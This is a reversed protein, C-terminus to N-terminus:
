LISRGSWSQTTYGGFIWGESSKIVILTPGKNDCYDHFSKASYEHESARFLLRWQYDNGFWQRIKKDYIRNVILTKPLYDSSDKLFFRSIKLRIEKDYCHIADMDNLLETNDDFHKLAKESIDKTQIYEMIIDPYKCIKRINEENEYDISYVEYDFVSFHNKEEPGATNVFLSCKYKPHCEYIENGNNFIFCSNEENCNCSICIDSYKWNYGFIPGINSICCIIESSHVRNM